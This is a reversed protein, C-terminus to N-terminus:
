ARRPRKRSALAPEPEPTAALQEAVRGEAARAAAAAERWSMNRLTNIEQELPPRKEEFCKQLLAFAMDRQCREGDQMVALDNAQEQAFEADEVKVEARRAYYDARLRHDVSAGTIEVDGGSM